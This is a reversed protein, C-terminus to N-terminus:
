EKQWEPVDDIPTYPPNSVIFDFDVEDLDIAFDNSLNKTFTISGDDELTAHLVSLRDDLDLNQANYLTLECAIYNTDIAM